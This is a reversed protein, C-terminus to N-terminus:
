EGHQADLCEIYINSLFIEMLERSIGIDTETLQKAGNLVTGPSVKKMNRLNRLGLKMSSHILGLLSVFIKSIERNAESSSIENTENSKMEKIIDDSTIPYACNNDEDLVNWAGAVDLSFTSHKHKALFVAETIGIFHVFMTQLHARASITFVLTDAQTNTSSCDALKFVHALQAKVTSDEKNTLKGENGFVTKVGNNLITSSSYQSMTKFIPSSLDEPPFYECIDALGLREKRTTSVTVSGYQFKLGKMRNAIHRKRKKSRNEAENRAGGATIFDAVFLLAEDLYKRTCRFLDPINYHFSSSSAPELENINNKPLVDVVSRYTKRENEVDEESPTHVKQGCERLIYYRANVAVWWGCNLSSPNQQGRFSPDVEFTTISELWAVANTSTVSDSQFEKSMICLGTALWGIINKMRDKSHTSNRLSDMHTIVIKDKGPKWSGNVYKRISKTGKMALLSWHGSYLVPAFLIDQELTSVWYDCRPANKADFVFRNSKVIRSVHDESNDIWKYTLLPMITTDKVIQSPRLILSALFDVSTDGLLGAPQKDMCDKHFPQLCGVTGDLRLFMRKEESGSHLNEDVKDVDISNSSTPNPSKNRVIKRRREESKENRGLNKNNPKAEHEQNKNDGKLIDHDSNGEDEDLIEEEIDEDSDVPDLSGKEGKEEMSGTANDEVNKDEEKEKGIERKKVIEKECEKKSLKQSKKGFVKKELEKKEKRPKKKEPAPRIDEDTTLKPRKKLRTNPKLSDQEIADNDGAKGVTPDISQETNNAAENEMRKQSPKRTSRTARQSM